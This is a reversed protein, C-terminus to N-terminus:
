SELPPSPGESDPPEGAKKSPIGIESGSKRRHMMYLIADPQRKGRLYPVSPPAAMVKLQKDWIYHQVTTFM